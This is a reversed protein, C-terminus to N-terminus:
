KVEIPHGHISLGPRTDRRPINCPSCPRYFWIRVARPPVPKDVWYDQWHGCSHTGSYAYM